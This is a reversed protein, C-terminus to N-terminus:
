ETEIWRTALWDTMLVVDPSPPHVLEEAVEHSEDVLDQPNSFFAQAAAFIENVSPAFRRFRRVGLLHRCETDVQGTPAQLSLNTFLNRHSLMWQFWGWLLNKNPAFDLLEQPTRPLRPDGDLTPSMKRKVTAGLSLVRLSPLNRWNGDEDSGALGRSALAETIALMTPNNVMVAGDVYQGHVGDDHVPPMYHTNVLMPYSSSALAVDVIRREDDHRAPGGGFNVFLKPKWTEINFSAALVRTRLDGLRGAGIYDTLVGATNESTDLPGMGSLFRLQNFIPARTGRMFEDLMESCEELLDVSSRGSGIKSALFLAAFAGCSVGAFLDVESLLDRGHREELHRAVHALVRVNILSVPGGDFSMIRRIPRDAADIM